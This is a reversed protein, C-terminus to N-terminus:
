CGKPRAKLGGYIETDLGFMSIYPLSLCDPFLVLAHLITDLVYLHAVSAKIMYIWEINDFLFLCAAPTTYAASVRLM